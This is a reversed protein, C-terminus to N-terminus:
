SLHVTTEWALLYTFYKMQRSLTSAEKICSVIQETFYQVM